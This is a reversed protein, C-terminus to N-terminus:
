PPSHHAKPRHFSMLFPQCLRWTTNETIPMQTGRWLVLRQIRGEGCDLSKTSLAAWHASVLIRCGNASTLVDRGAGEPLFSATKWCGVHFVSWRVLKATLKVWYDVMGAVDPLVAIPSLKEYDRLYPHVAYGILGLITFGFQSHYCTVIHLLWPKM